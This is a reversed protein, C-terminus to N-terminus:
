RAIGIQTALHEADRRVSPPASTVLDRVVQHVSPRGAVEEHATEEAARLAIYAKEHKGWQLFARATDVLFTAKREVTPIMGPDVKRAAEVASGADGLAVTLNVRYLKANTPGFSTNRLNGDIGLRRATEDAEGLLESATDRKGARAAAEAGRLLVAGYASLSEPTHAPMDHDLREAYASAATIATPFHGSSMLTATITTASTGVTVPDGSAEAARMSRDAALYALGQDDLKLLVLAAVRHAEACLAFARSQAQDDLALCAANLRALLSPLTKALDSYRGASFQGWVDAVAATLMGIDPTEHPAGGPTSGPQMALVPAFPEVTLPPADSPTDALVVNLMATGTLGVFSRRRVAESDEQEDESNLNLLTSLHAPQLVPRTDGKPIAERPQPGARHPSPARPALGLLIRAPDPFNLGDAIVEFKALHKVESAGREIDSIKGQSWGCAMGIQTQSAGTYQQVLLFFRGMRRDRLAQTVEPRQWFSDPIVILDNARGPM